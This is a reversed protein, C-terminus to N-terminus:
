IVAITVIRVVAVYDRQGTANRGIMMSFAEKEGSTDRRIIIGDGLVRYFSEGRWKGVDNLLGVSLEHCDSKCINNHIHM